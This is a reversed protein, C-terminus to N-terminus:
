SDDRLNKWEKVRCRYDCWSVLALGILAIAAVAYAALVYGAHSNHIWQPM